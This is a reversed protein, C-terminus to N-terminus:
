ESPEEVEQQTLQIYNPTLIHKIVLEGPFLFLFLGLEYCKRIEGVVVLTLSGVCHGFGSSPLAWCPANHLM